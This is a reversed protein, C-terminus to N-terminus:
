AVRWFFWCPNTGQDWRYPPLCMVAAIMNVVQNHQRNLSRSEDRDTGESNRIRNLLEDVAFLRLQGATRLFTKGSRRVLM